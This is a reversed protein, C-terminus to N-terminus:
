EYEGELLEPNEYINGVVEANTLGLSSSRAGSGKQPKFTYHKTDEDVSLNDEFCVLYLNNGFQGGLSKVENL